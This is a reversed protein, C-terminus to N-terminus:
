KILYIVLNLITSVGFLIIVGVGVIAATAFIYDSPELKRKM